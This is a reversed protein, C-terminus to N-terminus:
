QGGQNYMLALIAAGLRAVAFDAQSFASSERSSLNLVGVAKSAAFDTHSEDASASIAIGSHFILPSCIMSKFSNKSTVYVKPQVNNIHQTVVVAHEYRVNPVYITKHTSFARGAAGKGSPLSFGKEFDLGDSSDFEAKLSEDSRQHEMVCINIDVVGREEFIACFTKSFYQLFTNIAERKLEERVEIDSSMRDALNLYVCVENLPDFLNLLQVLLKQERGRHKHEQLHHWGILVEMVLLFGLLAPNTYLSHLLAATGHLFATLSLAVHSAAHPAFGAKVVAEAINLLIEVITFFGVVIFTLTMVAPVNARVFIRAWWFYILFYCWIFHAGNSMGRLGGRVESMGGTIEDLNENVEKPHMRRLVLVSVFTVLVLVTLTGIVTVAVISLTGM